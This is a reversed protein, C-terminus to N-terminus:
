AGCDQEGHSVSQKLYIYDEGDPHSGHELLMEIPAMYIEGKYDDGLMIKGCGNSGTHTVRLFGDFEVTAKVKSQVCYCFDSGDFDFKPHDKQFKERFNESRTQAREVNEIHNGVRSSIDM